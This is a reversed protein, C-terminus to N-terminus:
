TLRKEKNENFDVIDIEREFCEGIKVWGNKTLVLHDETCKIQKGNSLNFEFVEKYGKKFVTIPRQKKFNGGDYSILDPYDEKTLSSLYEISVYGKETLVSTSGHFCDIDPLNGQEVRDLTLFRSTSLDYEIPDIHTIGILYSILFGGASGRAPGTLYGNSKYADYVDVIPLFYPILNLKGNNTLLEFEERFQKVYAPNDWKMRGVKKIIEMLQKDPEPGSDPLRYDYKLEFNDFNKAWTHSNRILTDIHEESLGLESTLYTKAEETSRMHQHQAFREEEGLKMSQVVRDGESAYYSHNNILVRDTDGFKNTLALILRNAKTQIDGDPMPQFDNLLTAKKIDQFEKAVAYKIRNIYIHLIKKHRNGRRTLEIATAKKYHDTEIRDFAPIQITKNGSLQIEVMSEWFQDYKYPVISLYFNEKFISKLKQYYKVGLDARNVLLHKTVMDEINSTCATINFKSMEELDSWNFTPLSEGRVTVKKRTHDSTMKVIKQYAEQDKAHILLKFYKIQSSETDAIIDCHSDKFLIEIGAILKINKDKAYKYGRIIASLNSTDTAAFYNLGLEKTRNIMSEVTSGTLSSEPHNCPSIHNM